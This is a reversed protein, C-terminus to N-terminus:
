VVDTFINRIPLKALTNHQAPQVCRNIFRWASEHIHTTIISSVQLCAQGLTFRRRKSSFENYPVNWRPASFENAILGQVAYAFPDLWYAWSWWVPMDAAVLLSVM